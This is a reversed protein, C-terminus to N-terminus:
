MLIFEIGLLRGLKQIYTYTGIVASDCINESERLPKTVKVFHGGCGHFPRIWLEVTNGICDWIFLEM